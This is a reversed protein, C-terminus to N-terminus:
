GNATLIPPMSLSVSDARQLPVAALRSPIIFAAFSFIGSFVFIYLNSGTRQARETHKSLFYAFPYGMLLCIITAVLGYLISELITSFYDKIQTFNEITFAGTKDTLAYYGVMILPAIIFLVAWVFYPKDLLRKSFNAKM